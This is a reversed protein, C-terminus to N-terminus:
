ATTAADRSARAASRAGVTFVAAVIAAQMAFTGAFHESQGHALHVVELLAMVLAFAWFLASAITFTWLSVRRM